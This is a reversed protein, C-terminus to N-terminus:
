SIGEAVPSFYKSHMYNVFTLMNILYPPMLTFLIGGLLFILLLVLECFFFTFSWYVYLFEEFASTILFYLNFFDLIVKASWTLFFFKWYYYGLVVFKGHYNGLYLSIIIGVDHKLSHLNLSLPFLFQIFLVPYYCLHMFYLILLCM